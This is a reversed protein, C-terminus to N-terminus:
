ESKKTPTPKKDVPKKAPSKKVKKESNPNTVMAKIEKATEVPNEVKTKKPKSDKKIEKGQLMQEYIKKLNYDTGM